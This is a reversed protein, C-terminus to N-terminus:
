WIRGQLSPSVPYAPKLPLFFNPPIFAGGDGGTNANRQNAGRKVAGGGDRWEGRGSQWNLETRERKDHPYTREEYKIARALNISKKTINQSHFYFRQHTKEKLNM